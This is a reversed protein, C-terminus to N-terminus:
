SWFSSKNTSGARASALRKGLGEKISGSDKKGKGSENKISSGTGRKGVSNSDDEKEKEEQKFFAAYKTKIEAIATKADTGENKAIKSMALTVIDDIYEANAGLLLAEAKVEAVRARQEAKATDAAYKAKEETSKQEETKQSEVFAKFMAIVKEDGEEIGLKKYVDSKAAQQEAKKIADVQEQTFSKVTQTGKDENKAGNDGNAENAGNATGKEKNEEAGM